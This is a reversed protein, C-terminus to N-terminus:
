VVDLSQIQCSWIEEGLGVRFLEKLCFNTSEVACLSRNWAIKEKTAGVDDGLSWQKQYNLVVM